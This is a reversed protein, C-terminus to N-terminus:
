GSLRSYRGTSIRGAGRRGYLLLEPILLFCPSRHFLNVLYEVAKLTFAEMCPRRGDEDAEGSAVQFAAKAIGPM